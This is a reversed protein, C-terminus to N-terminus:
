LRKTNNYKDIPNVFIPHVKQDCCEEKLLKIRDQILKGPSDVGERVNGSQSVLYKSMLERRTSAHAWKNLRPVSSSIRSSIPSPQLDSTMGGKPSSSYNAPTEFRSTTSAQKGSQYDENSMRLHENLYLPRDRGTKLSATLGRRLCSDRGREAGHRRFCDTMDSEGPRGHEVELPEGGVGLARQSPPSFHSSGCFDRREILESDIHRVVFPPLDDLEELDSMLDSVTLPLDREDLNQRPSKLSVTLNPASYSRVRKPSRRPCAQWEHCGLKSTVSKYLRPSVSPQPLEIGQDAPYGSDKSPTKKSSKPAPPKFKVRYPTKNERSKTQLPDLYSDLLSHLRQSTEHMKLGDKEVEHPIDSNETRLRKSVVSSRSM